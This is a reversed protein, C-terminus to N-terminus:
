AAGQQAAQAANTRISAELARLLRFRERVCVAQVVLGGAMAVVGAAAAWHVMFVEAGCALWFGWLGLMYARNNALSYRRLRNRQAADMASGRKTDITSPAPGAIQANPWESLM